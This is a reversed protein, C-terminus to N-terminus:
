RTATLAYPLQDSKKKRLKRCTTMNLIAIAGIIVVVAIGTLLIAWFAGKEGPARSRRVPRRMPKGAKLDEIAAELREIEEKKAQLSDNRAKLLALRAELRTIQAQRGGGMKEIQRAIPNPQREEQLKAEEASYEEATLAGEDRRQQLERLRGAIDIRPRLLGKGLGLDKGFAGRHLRANPRISKNPPPPTADPISLHLFALVFFMSTFSM